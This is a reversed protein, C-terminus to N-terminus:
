VFSRFELKCFRQYVKKSFCIVTQIVQHCTIFSWSLTFKLFPHFNFSMQFLASVKLFSCNMKFSLFSNCCFGKPRLGQFRMCLHSWVSCSLFVFLILSKAFKLFPNNREGFLLNHVAGFCAITAKLSL